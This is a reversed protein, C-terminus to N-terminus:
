GIPSWVRTSNESRSALIMGDSAMQARMPPSSNPMMTGRVAESSRGVRSACRITASVARGKMMAPAAVLSPTPTPMAMAGSLPM